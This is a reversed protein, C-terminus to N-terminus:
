ANDVKNNQSFVPFKEIKYMMPEFGTEEATKPYEKIAGEALEKSLFVAKVGWSSPNMDDWDHFVIFVSDDSAPCRSNAAQGECDVERLTGMPDEPHIILKKM